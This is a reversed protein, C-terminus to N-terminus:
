PRPSMDKIPQDVFYKFNTNSVQCSSLNYRFRVEFVWRDIFTLFSRRFVSFFASSLFVTFALITPSTSSMHLWYSRWPHSSSMDLILKSSLVSGSIPRHCEGINTFTTPCTLAAPQFCDTTNTFSIMIGTLPASSTTFNRKLLSSRQLLTEYPNLM